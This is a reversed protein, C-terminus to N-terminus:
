KKRYLGRLETARDLAKRHDPALTEINNFKTWKNIEVLYYHLLYDTIRFSRARSWYIKKKVAERLAELTFKIVKNKEGVSEIIYWLKYTHNHWMFKLTDVNASQIEALTIERDSRINSYWSNAYLLWLWFSEWEDFAKKFDTWSIDYVMVETSISYERYFYWTAWNYVYDFVAWTEVSWIKAKIADNKMKEFQTDNM